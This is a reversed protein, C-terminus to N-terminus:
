DVMEVRASQAALARCVGAEAAGEVRPVCGSAVAVSSSKM